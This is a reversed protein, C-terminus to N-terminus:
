RRRGTLGTNGAQRGALQREDLPLGSLCAYAGVSLPATERLKTEVIFMRAM